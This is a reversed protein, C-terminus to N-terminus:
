YGTTLNRGTDGHYERLQDLYEEEDTEAKTPAEILKDLLLGMYAFADVQDDHTDRPFRTCEDEFTQYWDQSKDFYVTAARLRAQMSRARQIKDKGGHKLLYLSPFVGTKVSEERLFPGIAKSVQMEEIGIVEPQYIKELNLILDVIERGDLRERIINRVQINRNEDIGAILFVSYDARQEQSIALDVTIYYNLKLDRQEKSLELFDKRKFYATAEDLPVNLYEQSYVDGLGQEILSARKDELWGKSFRTPWLIFNFDPSHARYKVSYWGNRKVESWLKLPEQHSWKHVQRPMLNELLSNMHLITGVIRIIGSASLCPMLASNFWRAMKERRDKNMVLEDNEMDDCLIIDPRTGNWILGRLKQEAGKAIIRFKHGDEMEVIVDSESDKIFQVLGKENRKLGFLQILAENGQLHEKFFGLFMM